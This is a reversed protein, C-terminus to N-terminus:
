ARSSMRLAMTESIVATLIEVHRSISYASTKMQRRRELDHEIPLLRKLADEPSRPIAIRLLRRLDRRRKYTHCGHHAADVLLKPRNLEAIATDLDTM